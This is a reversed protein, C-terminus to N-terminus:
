YALTCYKVVKTPCTYQIAVDIYNSHHLCTLITRINFPLRIYDSYALTSSETTSLQRSHSVTRSFVHVKSKRM